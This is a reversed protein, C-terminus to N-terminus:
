KRLSKAAAVLSGLVQFPDGTICAAEIKTYNATELAVKAAPRFPAVFVVYDAHAKREADCTKQVLSNVLGCSGLFLAVSIIFLRKM